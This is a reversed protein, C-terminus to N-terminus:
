SKSAEMKDWTLECWKVLGGTAAMNKFKRYTHIRIYITMVVYGIIFVTAIWAVIHLISSNKLDALFIFACIAVYLMAYMVYKVLLFANTFGTEWYRFDKDIVTLVIFIVYSISLMISSTIFQPSM